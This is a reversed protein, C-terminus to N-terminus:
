SWGFRSLGECSSKEYLMGQGSQILALLEERTFLREPHDAYANRSIIVAEASVRLKKFLGRASSLTLRGDARYKLILDM